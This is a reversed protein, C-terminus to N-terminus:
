IIQFKEHENGGILWERDSIIAINLPIDQAGKTSKRINLIAENLDDYNM